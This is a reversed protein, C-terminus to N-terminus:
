TIILFLTLDFWSLFTDTHSRLDHSVTNTIVHCWMVLTMCVQSQQHVQSHVTRSKNPVAPSGLASILCWQCVSICTLVVNCSVEQIIHDVQEWVKNPDYGSVCVCVCM